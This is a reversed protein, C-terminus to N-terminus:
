DLFKLETSCRELNNEITKRLCPNIDSAPLNEAQSLYNQARLYYKLSETREVAREALLFDIVALNNFNIARAKLHASASPIRSLSRQYFLESLNFKGIDRYANGAFLYDQVLYETAPSVNKNIDFM